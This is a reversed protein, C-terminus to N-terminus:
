PVVTMRIKVNLTFFLLGCLAFDISASAAETIRIKKEATKMWVFSWMFVEEKHMVERGGGLSGGRPFAYARIKFLRCEVRRFGQSYDHPINVFPIEIAYRWGRRQVNQM